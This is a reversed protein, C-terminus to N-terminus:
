LSFYIKNKTKLRSLVPFAYKIPIFYIHFSGSQLIQWLFSFHIPIKSPDCRHSLAPSPILFWEWTKQKGVPHIISATCQVQSSLLSYSDPIPCMQSLWSFIYFICHSICSFTESSIFKHTMQHYNFDHPILKRNSCWLNGCTLLKFCYGDIVDIELLGSDLCPHFPDGAWPKMLSYVTMWFLLRIQPEPDEELSVPQQAIM